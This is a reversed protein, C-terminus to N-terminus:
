LELADAGGKWTGGRPQQQRGRSPLKHAAVRRMSIVTLWPRQTKTQMSGLCVKAVMDRCDLCTGGRGPWLLPWTCAPYDQASTPSLVWPPGPIGLGLLSSQGSGLLLLASPLLWLSGDKGLHYSAPPFQLLSWPPPFAVGVHTHVQTHVTTHLHVSRLVNPITVHIHECQPEPRCTCPYACMARQTHVYKSPCTAHLNRHPYMHACRFHLAETHTDRCSGQTQAAGGVSDCMAGAALLPGRLVAHQARPFPPQLNRWGRRRSLM